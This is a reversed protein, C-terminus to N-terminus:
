GRYCARRTSELIGDGGGCGVYDVRKREEYIGTAYLTLSVLASLDLKDGLDPETIGSLRLKSHLSVLRAKTTPISSTDGGVEKSTCFRHWLSTSALPIESGITYEHVHRAQPSLTSLLELSAFPCLHKQKGDNSGFTLHICPGIMSHLCSSAALLREAETELRLPHNEPSVRDEPV